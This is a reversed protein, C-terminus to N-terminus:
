FDLEELLTYNAIDGDDIGNYIAKIFKTSSWWGVVYDNAELVGLNTNGSKKYITFDGFPVVNFKKSGSGIEELDEAVLDAILGKGKNKLLYTRYFDGDTLKFLYLQTETITIEVDNIFVALKEKLESTESTPTELISDFTVEFVMFKNDQVIAEAGGIPVLDAELTIGTKFYYMDGNILVVLGTSRRSLILSSLVDAKSTYFNGDSRKSRDDLLKNAEIKINDQLVISM